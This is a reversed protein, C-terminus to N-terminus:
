NLLTYYAESNIFTMPLIFFIRLYNSHNLCNLLVKMGIWLAVGTFRNTISSVAAVPFKYITVHPSLPRGTKDQKETYSETSFNKLFKSAFRKDVNQLRFKSVRSLM